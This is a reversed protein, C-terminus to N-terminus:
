QCKILNGNVEEATEGVLLQAHITVPDPPLYVYAENNVVMDEGAGATRRIDYRSRCRGTYYWFTNNM